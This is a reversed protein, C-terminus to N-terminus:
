REIRFTSFPGPDDPNQLLLRDSQGQLVSASSFDGYFSKANCRDKEKFIPFDVFLRIMEDPKRNLNLCMKM